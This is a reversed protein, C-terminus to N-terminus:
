AEPHAGQLRLCILEANYDKICKKAWAFPDGLSDSFEKTLEEPWDVPSVDWVEFAVRPKNPIAGEEFLCPLSEEAGIKIISSRSGGEDKAAGITVTSIAGQWKEQMLQLAM